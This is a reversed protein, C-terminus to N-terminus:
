SQNEIHILIGKGAYSVIADPKLEITEGVGHHPRVMVINLTRAARMGPFSGERDGITLERRADNWALSITARASKEYRYSDGEDEYLTFKGDAGPYIRLEITDSPQQAYEIEPGLPIISGARVFLPIREIPAEATIRGPKMSAGTWFNYWSVAQPLYLSRSVANPQTVPNVLLAPGFMFQDTINRAQVDDPWDMVLARQLTYDESTVKWAMSYIYPMLRYRLKDYMVLAPEVKPYSFIENTERHGHTRFIPCFVGFQFWRAYLEQYADSHMDMPTTYGGIDTTWYPIGSMSFNLGAPIQAAFVSYTGAIDGSWTMAANRQQGAFASRTLTFVRKDEPSVRQGEYVVGTHLLPFINTYRAGNGLAIHRSDLVADSDPGFEPESADLWLSDWGQALMKSPLRDWYERRASGNSPDYVESDPLLEGKSKMISYSESLPDLAAWVSLMTHVNENHLKQLAGPVDPSDKLYRANYQPDGQNKWWYWDQVVVDLPVHNSRYEDAVRLLEAASLYHDKSQIFGYAWKPFLPAHGTLDRYEHVIQDVSPGLMLYYDISSATQTSLKLVQAFRNNFESHAATNWFIGFGRSSILLPIAVNSNQQALDIVSGRYNLTGNQHQGLGYLGETQDLAFRDSVSLAQEGNVQVPAYRRADTDVEKLLAEGNSRLFTFSGTKKDFIAELNPTSILINDGRDSIQPPSGACTGIIWPTASDAPHNRLQSVIHLVNADCVTITVTEPGNELIVSSGTITFPNDNTKEAYASLCCLLLAATAIQLSLLKGM